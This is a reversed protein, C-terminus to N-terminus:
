WLYASLDALQESFPCQMACPCAPETSSMWHAGASALTNAEAPQSPVMRTHSVRCREPQMSM